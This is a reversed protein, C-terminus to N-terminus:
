PTSRNSAAPKALSRLYNVLDWRESETLKDAFAPMASGPFGHAIWNELDADPHLPVHLVLDSPRPNMTPALPGNGRAGPGHCQACNQQFLTGGNAISEATAPHFQALAKSAALAQAQQVDEIAFYGGSGIIGIGCGAIIAARRLDIRRLGAGRVLALVGICALLLGLAFRWSLEPSPPTQATAGAATIVFAFNASADEHGPRRAIVEAQWRGSVALDQGAGSFRGVGEPALTIEATGLDSEQYTLRMTVRDIAAEPRGNTDHIEVLYQNRGPRGPTLALTMMLDATSASLTLPGAGAAASPQQAPSLSTMVGVAGIVGAILAVELLATWRLTAALSLARRIVGGGSAERAKQLSPRVLFHNVAGLTILPVISLLKVLLAQGYATNLLNELSGVHILAEILGTVGLSALAVAAVLSFRPVLSGLLRSRAIPEGSALTLPLLGSLQVLGGVWVAAAVLHLWDAAVGIPLVGFPTSTAGAASHSTLTIGALLAAGGLLGLRDIRGTEGSDRRARLLLLGGLIVGLVGRALVLQGYRTQLAVKLLPQGLAALLPRDASISAQLVLLGFTAALFVVLAIAALGTQRRRIRRIPGAPAIFQRLPADQLLWFGFSGVIVAASLLGAWRVAMEFPTGSSAVPVATELAASDLPASALGIGFPVTGRLIHGDVTSSTTWALVYTGKALNPKLGVILSTPDGPALRSDGADVRQRNADYIVAQSFSPELEETFWLQVQAPQQALTAGRPPDSRVLNAHAQAIGITVFALVLALLTALAGFIARHRRPRCTPDRSPLMM